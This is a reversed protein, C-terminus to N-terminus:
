RNLILWEGTVLLGRLISALVALKGLVLLLGSLSSLGGLFFLSFLLPTASKELLLLDLVLALLVLGQSPGLVVNWELILDNRCWDLVGSRGPIALLSKGADDAVLFAKREVLLVALHVDVAPLVILDLSQKPGVTIARCWRRVDESDAGLFPLAVGAVARNLLWVDKRIGHPVMELPM